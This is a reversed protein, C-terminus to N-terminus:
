KADRRGPKETIFIGDQFVRRDRNRIKTALEMRAATQGAAEINPSSVEISTGKVVVKVNDIIRAVREIKEGLFNKIRLEKGEVRVTVPFHVNCIELKYVFDENIGDIMNKIHAILSNTLKLERRTASKSSFIIKGDKLEMKVKPNQPLVRRVEKGKGKMEVIGGNVTTIIGQPIEVVENIDKKM